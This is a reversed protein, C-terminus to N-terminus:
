DRGAKHEVLNLIANFSRSGDAPVYQLAACLLPIKQQLPFGCGHCQKISFLSKLFDQELLQPGLGSFGSTKMTTQLFGARNWTVQRHM